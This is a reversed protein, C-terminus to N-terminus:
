LDNLTLPNLLITKRFKIKKDNIRAGSASKQCSQLGARRSRSARIEKKLACGARFWNSSGHVVGLPLQSKSTKPTYFGYRAGWSEDSLLAAVAQTQLHHSMATRPLIKCPELCLSRKCPTNRCPHCTACRM